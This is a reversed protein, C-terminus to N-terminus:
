CWIAVGQRAGHGRPSWRGLSLSGVILRGLAISGPSLDVAAARIGVFASAWLVVTVLAAALALRDVPQGSQNSMPETTSLVDWGM